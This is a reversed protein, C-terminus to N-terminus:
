GTRRIRATMAAMGPSRNNVTALWPQRVPFEWHGAPNGIPEMMSKQPHHLGPLQVGVGVGFRVHLNGLM